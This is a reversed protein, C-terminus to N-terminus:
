QPIVEPVGPSGCARALLCKALQERVEPTDMPTAESAPRAEKGSVLSPPFPNERNSILINGGWTTFFSGYHWLHNCRYKEPQKTTHANIIIQKNKKQRQKRTYKKQKKDRKSLRVLHTGSVPIFQRNKKPSLPSSLHSCLAM